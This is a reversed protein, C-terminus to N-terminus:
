SFGQVLDLIQLLLQLGLVDIETFLYFQFISESMDDTDAVWYFIDHVSYFLNCRRARRHKQCSLCTGSFPHKRAGEMFRAEPFVLGEHM